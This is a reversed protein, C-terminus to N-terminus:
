YVAITLTGHRLEREEVSSFRFREWEQSEATSALAYKSDYADRIPIAGRSICFSLGWSVAFIWAAGAFGLGACARTPDRPPLTHIADPAQPCTCLQKGGLVTGQWAFLIRETLYRSQRM